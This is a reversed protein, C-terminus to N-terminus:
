KSKWVPKGSRVEWWGDLIAKTGLLLENGEFPLVRYCAASNLSQFRDEEVHSFLGIKWVGQAGINDPNSRLIRDFPKINFGREPEVRKLLELAEAFTVEPRGCGDFPVRADWPNSWHSLAGELIEVAKVDSLRPQHIFELGAKELAELLAKAREVTPTLVKFNLLEKKMKSEKLKFIKRVEIPCSQELSCGEKGLKFPCDSCPGDVVEYEKGDHIWKGNIKEM